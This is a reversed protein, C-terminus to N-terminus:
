CYISILKSGDCHRRNNAEGNIQQAGRIAPESNKSPMISAWQVKALADASYRKDSNSLYFCSGLLNGQVIGICRQLRMLINPFMPIESDFTSVYLVYMRM